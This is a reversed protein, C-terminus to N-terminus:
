RNRRRAAKQAKGKARARAKAERKHKHPGEDRLRTDPRHGAPLAKRADRSIFMGIAIFAILLGGAIVYLTSTGSIESDLFGEEEEPEPTPAPTPQAPPIPSFPQTPQQQPQTPQQQPQAPQTQAAAAAPALLALLLAILATWRFMRDALTVIQPGAWRPM